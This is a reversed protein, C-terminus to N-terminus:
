HAEDKIRQVTGVGIGLLKATKIIGTGKDLQARVRREIAGDVKPRGLKAGNAVARKLGLKVRQRIMSREFEAFAGCVQFMLRGAPTTTDIAQQELFLDVGCAELHQITTLLDILSRGLRDIAWAMVVDFRRKSADKLMGDLGPRKDRGKAGSIGADSYIEVVQWGRREAMQRLERTQNEVTQGDTSVRVYIAANRKRAMMAAEMAPLVMGYAYVSFLHKVYLRRNTIEPALLKLPNGCGIQLPKRYLDALWGCAHTARSQIAKSGGCGDQLRTPHAFRGSHLIL